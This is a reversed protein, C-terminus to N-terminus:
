QFIKNVKGRPMSINNESNYFLLIHDTVSMGVSTSNDGYSILKKDNKTRFGLFVSVM